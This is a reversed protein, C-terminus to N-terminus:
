RGQEIRAIPPKPMISGDLQALPRSQRVAEARLLNFRGMIDIGQSILMSNMSELNALVTLQAVSASDRVNQNKKALKPNAKRWDKSTHGFLALNVIEAEEAYLIGEKSKPLAALPIKVERVANTQLRYNVKTLFRHYDWQEFESELQKLRQFEKIL